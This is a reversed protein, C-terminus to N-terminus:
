SVFNSETLVCVNSIPRVVQMFKCSCICSHLAETCASAASGVSVREEIVIVLRVISDRQLVRFPLTVTGPLRVRIGGRHAGRRLHNSLILSFTRAFELCRNTSLM